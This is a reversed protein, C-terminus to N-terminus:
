CSQIAFCEAVQERPQHRTTSPFHDCYTQPKAYFSHQRWSHKVRVEQLRDSNLIIKGTHPQQGNSEIGRMGEILLRIIM